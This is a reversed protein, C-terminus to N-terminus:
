LSCKRFITNTLHCEKDVCEGFMEPFQADRTAVNQSFSNGSRGQHETEIGGNDKTEKQVVQERSIRLPLLIAVLSV